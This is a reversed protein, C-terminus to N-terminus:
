WFRYTQTYNELSNILEETKQKYHKEQDKYVSDMHKVEIRIANDITNVRIIAYTDVVVPLFVSGQIHSGTWYKGSVIGSEKDSFQIVSKANTFNEVFWSNVIIYNQDKTYDTQIEQLRPQLPIRNTGMCSGMLVILAILIINLKKM